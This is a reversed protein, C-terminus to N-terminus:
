IASVMQPPVEKFEQKTRQTVNRLRTPIMPMIKFVNEELEVVLFDQCIQEYLSHRALAATLCFLTRGVHLGLLVSGEVPGLM